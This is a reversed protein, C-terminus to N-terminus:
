AEFQWLSGGSIDKWKPQRGVREHFDQIRKMGATRLFQDTNLEIVELGMYYVNKLSQVAEPGFATGLHHRLLAAEKRGLFLFAPQRGVQTKRQILNRIQSSDWSSDLELESSIKNPIPFQVNKM